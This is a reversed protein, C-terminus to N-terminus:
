FEIHTELNGTRMGHRTWQIMWSKIVKLILLVSLGSRRIVFNRKSSKRCNETQPWALSWGFPSCSCKNLGVQESLPQGWANRDGEWCPPFSSGECLVNVGNWGVLHPVARVICDRRKMLAENPFNLYLIKSSVFHSYVERPLRFSDEIVLSQAWVHASWLQNRVAM